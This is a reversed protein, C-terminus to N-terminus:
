RLRRRAVEIMDRAAQQRRSGDPSLVRKLAPRAIVGQVLGELRRAGTAMRVAPPAGIAVPVVGEGHLSLVRRRPQKLAEDFLAILRDAVRTWTYEDAREVLATTLQTSAARDHLLTWARNVADAVDFGDLVPLGAPLVEDLSGQRSCLTPVGHRAAEFPVMGFGEVTSPYLVLAAHEYLWRKNSESVAGVDIVDGRLDPAGLLHEAEAALSNGFPPTPGALVLRGSWGRRRLETWVRLTFARNKHLYSAGIALLFGTGHQDLGDLPVARPATANDTGCSVVGWPQGPRGLGADRCTARAHESLFAVGSALELTLRTLDRFTPWSEGGGFYAPNEFAITDLQNVVFCEGARHLFVLESPEQVQYPRYMVDVVGEPIEDLTRIGIFDVAPLEARLSRVVAPTEFPVFAVLRDIETRAALARITEITNILTGSGDPGLCLADIGVTLGLLARRAAATARALDSARDLEARRVWAEFWPYRARVLDEHRARRALVEARDGFSAGGRHFTFVDDAVIHRFGHATARQCFDVEEGYGPAFTEDFPGILDLVVRRILLCHGVGTPIQPRLRLSGAAVRRAAEDVSLHGPLGRVPQNRYPVSVISGHNTLSTVTAVLDSTAAAEVMLQLWRPGVVVDSNVLVVDRGATAAFANNCSRVFGQNAAHELIVLPHGLRDSLAGLRHVLRRDCGADDVVLIATGACTHAFVSELCRVADDYSNHVPIVIVPSPATALAAAASPVDAVTTVTM